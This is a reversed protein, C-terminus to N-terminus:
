TGHFSDGTPNNAGCYVCVLASKLIKRGCDSCNTFYKKQDIKGDLKGDAMDLEEIYKKLDSETLGTHTKLLEWMAMTVLRLREYRIELENIRGKNTSTSRITAVQDKSQKGEIEYIKKFQFIDLLLDIM